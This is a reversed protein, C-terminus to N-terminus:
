NIISEDNKTFVIENNDLIVVHTYELFVPYKEYFPRWFASNEPNSKLIDWYTGLVLISIINDDTYPRVEKLQRYTITYISDNQSSAILGSLTMM